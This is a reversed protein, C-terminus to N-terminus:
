AAEGNVARASPLDGFRLRLAHDRFAFMDLLQGRVFLATALTGLPGLPSKFLVRDSLETGQSGDPLQVSAFSHEHWWCSFPGRRQIDVFRKHPEWAAIEGEWPIQLPGLAVQHTFRVGESMAPLDPDLTLGSDAPSLAALNRADKFFDWVEDIPAPVQRKSVLENSPPHARLWDLGADVDPIGSFSRVEAADTSTVDELAQDLDTFAHRFGFAALKAPAVYQGELLATAAEGLLTRMAFAPAPTIAPMGVARGIAQAFDRQAASTPGVMNVPGSLTPTNLALVIAEVLDHLHIWAIGQTGSGLPGGLGLRTLPLLPGLAGGGRALVIGIRGWVVRVGAEQAPRFAAEWDQCLDALFGKGAPAEESVPTTSTHGYFGVASAAVVTTPRHTAGLIAEVLRHNLDVRSSRLAAKRRGTWRGPLVPEGALAVVADCGDVAQALAAQDGSAAEAEGGLRQAVRRESRSWAVVTHGERRLRLTLARGVLGTAGTIFVRM